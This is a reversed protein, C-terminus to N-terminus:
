GRIDFEFAEVFRRKGRTFEDPGTEVIKALRRREATVRCVQEIEGVRRLLFTYRLLERFEFFDAYRRATGVEADDVESAELLIPEEDVLRAPPRIQWHGM